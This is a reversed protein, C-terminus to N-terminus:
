QIQPPIYSPSPFRGIVRTRDCPNVGASVSPQEGEGEPLTEPIKTSDDITIRRLTKGEPLVIGCKELVEESVYIPCSTIVALAIADSPRADIEKSYFLPL